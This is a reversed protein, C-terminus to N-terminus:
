SQTSLDLITKMTQDIRAMNTVRKRHDMCDFNIYEINNTM